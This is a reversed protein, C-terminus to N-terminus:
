LESFNKVGFKAWIAHKDIDHYYCYAMLNDRISGQEKGSGQPDDLSVLGTGFGIGYGSDFFECDQWNNNNTDWDSQM